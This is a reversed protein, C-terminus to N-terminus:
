SWRDPAHVHRPNRRAAGNQQIPSDAQDTIANGLRKRDRDLVLPEYVPMEVPDHATNRRARDAEEGYRDHTRDALM